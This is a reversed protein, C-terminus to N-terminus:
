QVPYKTMHPAVVERVYHIPVKLTELIVEHEKTHSVGAEAKMAFLVKAETMLQHLAEKVFIVVVVEIWIPAVAEAEETVAVEIETMVEVEPKELAAAETEAVTAGM